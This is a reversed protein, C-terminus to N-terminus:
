RGMEKLKRLTEEVEKDRSPRTPYAPRPMFRQMIPAPRQAQPAPAGVQPGKKRAFKEKIKPWNRM